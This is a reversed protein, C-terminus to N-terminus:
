KKVEVGKSGFFDAVQRLWGGPFTVFSRFYGCM